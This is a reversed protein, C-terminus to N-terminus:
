KEPPKILEEPSDPAADAERIFEPPELLQALKKDRGIRKALEQTKKKEEETMLGLLEVVDNADKYGSARLKMAALYPKSLVPLPVGKIMQAQRIGELEWKYYVIILDIRINEGKTDDIFIVDHRFPDDPLKSGQVFRASFQAPLNKNLIEFLKKSNGSPILDNYICLDVDITTREVGHFIVANGGALAAEIKVPLSNIIGRITELTDEISKM